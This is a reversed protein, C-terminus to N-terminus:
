RINKRKRIYLYILLLPVWIVGFVAIWIILTGIGLVVAAVTRAAQKFIVGPRWSGTPAYPLALEDTSLYLTIKAMEANKVLYDQQGKISDISAQVNIIEMQIQLIDQVITANNFLDELKAKTKEYTKLQTDLDIYQDTVDQGQLNESVVKLSLSRYYGLASELKKAPIRVIITASAVDSPDTVLTSVMYGGLEEAKKIISQQVENVKLVKLSLYSDKIVLRDKINAVPASEYVPVPAINKASFLMESSQSLRPVSSTRSLSTSNKNALLYLIVVILLIILKHNKIWEWIGKM